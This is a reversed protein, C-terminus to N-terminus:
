PERATRNAICGIASRRDFHGPFPKGLQADPRLRAASRKDADLGPMTKGARRIEVALEGVLGAHHLNLRTLLSAETIPYTNASRRFGPREVPPRTTRGAIRLM